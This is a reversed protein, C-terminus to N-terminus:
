KVKRMARSFAKYKDYFYEWKKASPEVETQPVARTAEFKYDVSPAFDNSTTGKQSCIACSLSSASTPVEVNSYYGTNPQSCMTCSTAILEEDTPPMPVEKEPESEVADKQAFITPRAYSSSVNDTTESKSDAANRATEKSDASDFKNEAKGSEFGTSSGTNKADSNGQSCKLCSTPQVGIPAAQHLKLKKLMLVSRLAWEVLVHRAATCIPLTRAQQFYHNTAMTTRLNFPKHKMLLHPAKLVLLVQVKFALKAQILNRTQLTPIQGHLRFRVRRHRPSAAPHHRPSPVVLQSPHTRIKYTSLHAAEQEWRVHYAAPRLSGHTQHLVTAQPRFIEKQMQVSLNTMLVVLVPTVLGQVTHSTHLHVAPVAEERSVKHSPLPILHRHCITPTVTTSLQQGHIRHEKHTTVAPAAAHDMPDQELTVFEANSTSNLTHCQNLRGTDNPRVQYLGMRIRQRQFPAAPAFYQAADIVDPIVYM